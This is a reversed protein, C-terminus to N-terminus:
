LGKPRFAELINKESIILSTASGPYLQAANRIQLEGQVKGGVGAHFLLQYVVSHRSLWVRMRRVWSDTPPAETINAEVKQYQLERLPAWYDLGYTISYANEFDDGMYLGWVLAKPKLQLAKNKSLYFYQ